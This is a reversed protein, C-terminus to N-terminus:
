AADVVFVAHDVAHIVVRQPNRLQAAVASGYRSQRPADAVLDDVTPVGGAATKLCASRRRPRCTVPCQTAGHCSGTSANTYPPPAGRPLIGVLATM